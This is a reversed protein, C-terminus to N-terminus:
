ITISTCEHWDTTDLEPIWEGNNAVWYYIEKDESKIWASRAMDGTNTLYFWRGDYQVWKSTVMYGTNDFYYWIGNIQDWANVEFRYGPKVYWWRGCEELVWGSVYRASIWGKDTQYWPEGDIFCKQIPQIRDGRRYTGIVCGNAPAKRINLETAIIELGSEGSSVDYSLATVKDVDPSYHFHWFLTNPDMSHHKECVAGGDPDIKDEGGSTNGEVTTYGGRDTDVGSVIGFHGYKRGTWFIAAAGAEPTHNLRIDGTHQSVFRQCNYPLEGGYLDVATKVADAENMDCYQMLALVVIDSGYMACWPQGQYNRGTYDQYLMAWITYNDAGAAWHFDWMQERTGIKRKEQWNKYKRATNVVCSAKLGYNPM